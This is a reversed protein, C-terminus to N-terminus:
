QCGPMDVAGGNEYFNPEGRCSECFYDASDSTVGADIMEKCMNLKCPPCVTDDVRGGCIGDDCTYDGCCENDGSCSGGPDVNTRVPGDVTEVM